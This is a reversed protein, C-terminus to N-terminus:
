AVASLAASTCSACYFIESPIPINSAVWKSNNLNEKGVAFKAIFPGLSWKRGYPMTKATTPLIEAFKASFRAACAYNFIWGLFLAFYKQLLYVEYRIVMICAYSVWENSVCSKCFCKGTKINQVPERYILGCLECRFRKEDEICHCHTFGPMKKRVVFLLYRGYFFLSKPVPRQLKYLHLDRSMRYKVFISVKNTPTRQM